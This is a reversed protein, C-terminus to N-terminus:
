IDLIANESIFGYIIDEQYGWDWPPRITSDLECPWAAGHLAEPVLSTLTLM